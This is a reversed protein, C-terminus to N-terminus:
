AHPNDETGFAEQFAAEAEPTMEPQNVEAAAEDAMASERSIDEDPEESPKPQNMTMSMVKGPEGQAPAPSPTQEGNQGKFGAVNEPHPLIEPFVRSEYDAPEVAPVFLEAVKKFRVVDQSQLVIQTAMWEKHKPIGKGAKNMEIRIKDPLNDEVTEEHLDNLIVVFRGKHWKAEQVNDINFCNFLKVMVKGEKPDRVVEEYTEYYFLKGM